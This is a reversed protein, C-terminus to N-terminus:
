WYMCTHPHVYSYVSIKKKIQFRFDFFNASGESQKTYYLLRLIRRMKNVADMRGLICLCKINRVHIFSLVEKVKIVPFLNLFCAPRDNEWWFERLWYTHKPAHIFAYM